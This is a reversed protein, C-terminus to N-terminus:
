TASRRWAPRSRRLGGANYTGSHNVEGRGVPALLDETTGLVALPFGSAIAKAYISIDGHVGLM